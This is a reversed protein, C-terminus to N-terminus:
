FGFANALNALEECAPCLWQKEGAVTVKKLKGDKAGCIDCASPACGTLVFLMAAVLLMSIIKKM